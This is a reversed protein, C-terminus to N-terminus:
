KYLIGMLFEVIYSIAPQGDLIGANLANLLGSAETKVIRGVNGDVISASVVQYTNGLGFIGNEMQNEAYAVVVQGDAAVVKPILNAYSNGAVCQLPAIVMSDTDLNTYYVDASAAMENLGVEGTGFQQNAKCMAIHIKGGEM